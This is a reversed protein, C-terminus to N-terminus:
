GLSDSFDKSFEERTFSYFPFIHSLQNENMLKNKFKFVHPHESTRTELENHLIYLIGEYSIRAVKAIEHVKVRCNALVM